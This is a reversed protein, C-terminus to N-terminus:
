RLLVSEKPSLMVPQNEKWSILFEHKVQGEGGEPVIVTIVGTDDAISLSPRQAVVEEEQGDPSTYRFVRKMYTHNKGDQVVLGLNFVYPSFSEGLPIRTGILIIRDAIGDGNVDGSKTDVAYTDDELSLGEAKFKEEAPPKTESISQEANITAPDPRDPGPWGSDFPDEENLPQEWAYTNAMRDQEDTVQEEEEANLLIFSFVVASVVLAIAPTILWKRM